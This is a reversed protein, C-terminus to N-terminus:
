TVKIPRWFDPNFAFSDGNTNKWVSMNNESRRFLYGTGYGYAEQKSINRYAWCLEVTENQVPWDERLRWSDDPAPTGDFKGVPQTYVVM